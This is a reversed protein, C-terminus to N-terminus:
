KESTNHGNGGKLREEIHAKDVRWTDGIKVGKLEGSELWRYITNLHVKLLDAADAPTM